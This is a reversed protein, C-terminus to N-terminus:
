IGKSTNECPDVGGRITGWRPFAESLGKSHTRAWGLLIPVLDFAENGPHHALSKSSSLLVATAKTKMVGHPLLRNETKEKDPLPSDLGFYHVKQLNQQAQTPLRPRPGAQRVGMQRQLIPPRLATFAHPWGLTGRCFGAQPFATVRAPLDVADDVPLPPAARGRPKRPPPPLLCLAKTHHFLARRWERVATARGAAGADSGACPRQEAPLLSPEDTGACHGVEVALHALYVCGSNKTVHM